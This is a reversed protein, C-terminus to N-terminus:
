KRNGEWDCTLEGERYGLLVACKTGDDLVILKVEPAAGSDTVRTASPDSSRCGALVLLLIAFIIKM